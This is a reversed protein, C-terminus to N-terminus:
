KHAIIAYDQAGFLRDAIEPLANSQLFREALETEARLPLIGVKSFGAHRAAFELLPDPLPRRHTPDLHFRNAATFLNGPNPTEVIAMGGPLLIRHIGRLFAFWEPWDLHEIVHFATVLQWHDSPSQAVFTPLDADIVNLGKAACADLLVRNHDVGISQIKEDRMLELWEGRGCGLDLAPGRGVVERVRPLYVRLRETIAETTGRFRDGFEVFFQDLDPDHANVGARQAPSTSRVTAGHKLQARLYEILIANERWVKERLALANQMGKLTDVTLLNAARQERTLLNFTWLVLRRIPAITLPFRRFRHPM